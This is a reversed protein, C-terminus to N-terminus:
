LPGGGGSGSSDQLRNPLDDFERLLEDTDDCRRASEFDILVAKSDRVLFNFRNIDGHRVKLGHLRRLIEQCPALDQLGAHRANTIGEMLFGIVRGHETLHGLFRPGIDHGDIWQYATTEDELYQIEWAFRAFKAIVPTHFMPSRIEYIGTRVRRGITIDMYDVFVDHWTNRVYPFMTRDAHVFSPLSTKPDRDVVGNNWDGAPLEPLLTKLTPGFCLDDASYIGPEVTIYKITQGDILLRLFSQDREDVEAQLLQITHTETVM